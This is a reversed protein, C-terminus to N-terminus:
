PVNLVTVGESMMWESLLVGRAVSARGSFASMKSFWMLSSANADMGVVMRLGFLDGLYFWYPEISEGLMCNVSALLLRCVFM